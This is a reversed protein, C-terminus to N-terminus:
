SVVGRTSRVDSQVTQGGLKLALSHLARWLPRGTLKRPPLAGDSLVDATACDWPLDALLPLELQRAIDSASYPRGGGSVVLSLSASSLQTADTLEPLALRLAALAPLNSRTVVAVTWAREVLAAPLGDADLRGADVIVDVGGTQLDDFQDALRGWYGSFLLASRPHAFGPLFRRRHAAHEDLPLTFDLLGGSSEPRPARYTEALAGLGRGGVPMGRLYGALVAQSPHPDCDALLVERPWTLALGLATSTVGPSGGASACIILM